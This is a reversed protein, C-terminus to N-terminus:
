SCSSLGISMLAKTFDTYLIPKRLFADATENLNDPEEELWSCLVVPINKTAPDTKFRRLLNWGSKDPQDVELIIAAPQERRALEVADEGIYAFVINYDSKKIYRRMLYCFHSDIGIVMISLEEAQDM